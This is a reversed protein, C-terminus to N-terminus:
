TVVDEVRANLVDLLAMITFFGPEVVAGTEIKKVTSVAVRARAALEEQSLGAQKRLFRLRAALLQAQDRYPSDERRKRGPQVV